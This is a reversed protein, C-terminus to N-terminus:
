IALINLIFIYIKVTRHPKNFTHCQIAGILHGFLELKSFCFNDVPSQTLHQTFKYHKFFNDATANYTKQAKTLLLDQNPGEEKIFHWDILNNSGEIVWNIPMAWNGDGRARMTYQTLKLLHKKFTIIVSSNPLDQSCWHTELNTDRKLLDNAGVRGVYENTSSPTAILYKSLSSKYVINFITIIGSMDNYIPPIIEM